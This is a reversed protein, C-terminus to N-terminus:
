EAGAVGWEMGMDMEMDPGLGLGLEGQFFCFGCDVFLATATRGFICIFIVGNHLFISTHM